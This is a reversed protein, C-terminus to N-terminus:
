KAEAGVPEKSAKAPPRAEAAALRAKLEANEAEAARQKAVYEMLENQATIARTREAQLQVEMPTTM